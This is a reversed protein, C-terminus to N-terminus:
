PKGQEVLQHAVEALRQGTLQRSTGLCVTDVKRSGRRYAYWYWSGRRNQKRATFTGRPSQFYFMTRAMLWAFWSPSNLPLEENNTYLYDNEVIPIVQTEARQM